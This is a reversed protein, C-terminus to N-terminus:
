LKSLHNDLLELVNNWNSLEKQRLLKMKPYWNSNEDNTWRWERITTLLCITEIGMSGALHVISTDTSVVLDINNLISITDYFSNNCNDIINSLDLINNDKLIRKEKDNLNKNISIYNLNNHKKLVNVLLKLDITRIHENINAKNGSWNIVINKKNKNIINNLSINSGVINKLYYNNNIDWYEKELIFAVEHLNIHYNFKNNFTKKTKVELNKVDKFITTFIWHLGDEHLMYIINYNNYYNCFEQIYRSLMIVDGLGGCSYILIVEVPNKTIKNYYPYSSTDSNINLKNNKVPYLYKISTKVKQYNKSYLNIKIYIKTFYHVFNKNEILNLYKYLYDYCEIDIKQISLINNVTFFCSYLLIIIYNIVPNINPIYKKYDYININDLLLKYCEQYNKKNFLEQSHLIKDNLTLIDIKAEKLIINQSNNFSIDITQLIKEEKIESNFKENIERKIKYREDNTRHINESCNIYKDDYIKNISLYRILDELEWLKINVTFLKDIYGKIINNNIDIIQELEIYERKINNKQQENNSKKFKIMLITYKDIIEGLSCKIKFEM